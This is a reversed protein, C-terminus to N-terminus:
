LSTYCDEDVDDAVDLANYNNLWVVVKKLLDRIRTSYLKSETTSHRATNQTNTM